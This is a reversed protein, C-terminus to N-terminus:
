TRIQSVTGWAFAWPKVITATEVLGLVTLAFATSVKVVCVVLPTPLRAVPLQKVNQTGPPYKLGDVSVESQTEYVAPTAMALQVIVASVTVIQMVTVAVVLFKQTFIELQTFGQEVVGMVPM